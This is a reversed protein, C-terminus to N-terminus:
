ARSGAGEAAVAPPPESRRPALEALLVSYILFLHPDKYITNFLAAVAFYGIPLWSARSSRRWIRIPFMVVLWLLFGVGGGRVLQELYGNHFSAIPAGVSSDLLVAGIGFVPSKAVLGLSFRYLATRDDSRILRQQVIPSEAATRAIRYVRPGVLLVGAVCAAGVIWRGARTHVMRWAEVAGCAAVALMGTRSTTLIAASLCLAAPWRHRERVTLLIGALGLLFALYNPWDPLWHIAWDRLAPYIFLGIGHRYQGTLVFLVVVAGALSTVGTLLGRFFKGPMAIGYGYFLFVYFVVSYLARFTSIIPAYPSMASSLLGLAILGLVALVLTGGVRIRPVILGFSLFALWYFPVDPYAVPFALIFGAWWDRESLEEPRFLPAQRPPLTM